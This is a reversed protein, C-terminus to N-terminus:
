KQQEMYEKFNMKDFSDTQIYKLIHLFNDHKVYGPLETIKEGDAKYFWTSPLGRAPHKDAVDKEKDRNVKIAVFNENIYNIVSEETFTNKNMEKCYHCWDAYFYLLVKKGETKGLTITDYSVWQITSPEQSVSAVTKSNGSQEAPVCHVSFVFCCLTLTILFIHSITKM